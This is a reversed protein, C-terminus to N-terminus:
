RTPHDTPSSSTPSITMSTSHLLHWAADAVGGGAPGAVLHQAVARAEEAGDETAFATGVFRLVAVDNRQDGVMAARAPPVGYRDLVVEAGTAKSVGPATVAVFAVDAMRPSRGEHLGIGSLGTAAEALAPWRALPVVWQVRVVRDAVPWPVIEAPVGLLEEHRRVLEDRAAVLYRGDATYAEVTAGHAAGLDIAAAVMHDPMAEAHVIGGDATLVAAGSEFVHLGGPDARRALARAVGGGPRGTCLAVRWGAARLAALAPWVRAAVGAPGVLTGDIDVFLVGAPPAPPPV